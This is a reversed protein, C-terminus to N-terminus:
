TSIGKFTFPNLGAAISKVFEWILSRFDSSFIFLAIFILVWMWFLRGKLNEKALEDEFDVPSKLRNAENKEMTLLVCWFSVEALLWASLGLLGAIIFLLFVSAAEFIVIVLKAFM